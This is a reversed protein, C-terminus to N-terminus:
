IVVRHYVDYSNKLIFGLSSYLNVVPLNAASISSTVEQNEGSSLLDKCALSWWYKSMARGRFKESVAHLVLRNGSYGIFGALEKKWFLRYVQRLEVLEELWQTYRQNALSKSLNFDRHFRGHIFANKCIDFIDQDPIDLKSIGADAHTFIRLRNTNCSPELLTDCYYFGFRHLLSKDAVPNVKLTYHGPTSKVLNMADLSYSLVEWSPMNFINTDWPTPKILPPQSM